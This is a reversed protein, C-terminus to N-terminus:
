NNPAGECIWTSIIQLQAASLSTGTKPMQTGSCIGTGTLKNMLYSRGAASPSVRVLSTCSSSAAVNGLAGYAAGASLALSGAPRNGTHCGASACSGTLIPQVQGAFSVVPGCGCVGKSCTQGAACAKGCVGCNAPDSSTDICSGGCNSTGSPCTTVCQGGACPQGGCSRGCVGCSTPDTALDVCGSGCPSTGSPCVCSGAVCTKASGCAKGCGGCNDADSTLDTCGAACMMQDGPCAPTTGAGGTASGGGSGGAGTDGTGGAGADGAGGAGTSGPGGGAGSAPPMAAIWAQLCTLTENSLPAAVLPMPDGCTEAGPTLKQLLYSHAPDGPAILVADGCGNAPVDVLRQALGPSVLDLALAPASGGHCASAGCTPQLIQAQVAETTDPCAAGPPSPITTTCAGTMNMVMVLILAPLAPQHLRPATRAPSHM